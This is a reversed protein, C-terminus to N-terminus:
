LEVVQASTGLRAFTHGDARHHADDREDTAKHKPEPPPHIKDQLILLKEEMAKGLRFHSSRGTIYEKAMALTVIQDQMLFMMYACLVAVHHDSDDACYIFVRDRDDVSRQIFKYLSEFESYINANWRQM